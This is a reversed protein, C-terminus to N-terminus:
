LAVRFSILRPDPPQPRLDYAGATRGAALMAQAAGADRLLMLWMVEGAPTAGMVARGAVLTAALEAARPRLEESGALFRQLDYEGLPEYDAIVFDTLRWATFLEEEDAARSSALYRDPHLIEATREPPDRFAADVREWGGADRLARVFRLGAGYHFVKEFREPDLEGTPPLVAHQEFDYDLLEAVALMAEGEILATLARSADAGTARGHLAALDFHQDQLAHFLEHYLVGRGMAATSGDVVVLRKTSPEYWGNLHADAVESRPVLEVELDSTFALGRWRELEGLIADPEAGLVPAPSAGGAGVLRAGSAAGDAPPPPQPLVHPHDRAEASGTHCAAALLSLALCALRAPMPALILAWAEKAL